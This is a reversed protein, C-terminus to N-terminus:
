LSNKVGMSRFTAAGVVGDAKLGRMRQYWAVAARTRAGFVGDAKGAREPGLFRQVYSVDDVSLVPKGPVYALVRSGPAHKVVPKIVPKVPSAVPKTGPKEERSIWTAKSEGAFMSIHARAAKPDLLYRRRFEDHVHWSHSWNAKSAKNTVFNLRVPHGSGDWVNVCNIYKRRPDTKDKWVRYVRQYVKIMDAKNMSVDIAAGYKINFDRDDPQVNSYDRGNGHKRLDEVSCHYGGNELHARDPVMGSLVASKLGSKHVIADAVQRLPASVLTAM